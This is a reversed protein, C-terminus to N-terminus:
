RTTDGDGRLKAAMARCDAARKDTHPSATRELSNALGDLFAAAQENSEATTIFKQNWLVKAACEEAKERRLREIEARLTELEVRMKGVDEFQLPVFDSMEREELARRTLREIEDLLAIMEPSPLCYAELTRSAGRRHKALDSMEGQRAEYNIDKLADYASERSHTTPASRKGIVHIAHTLREVEARLRNIETQKEFTEDCATQAIKTLREIEARLKDNDAMLERGKTVSRNLREVLDSM